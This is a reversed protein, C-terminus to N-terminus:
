PKLDFDFTMDTRQDPITVSLGSEGPRGYHKPIEWIEPATPNAMTPGSLISVIVVDYEGPQVGDDPGFTALEYRGDSDLQASAPRLPADEGSKTALFSIRAKWMAAPNGGVPVGDLTVRGSVPVTQPVRNCGSAGMAVFLLVCCRGLPMRGDRHRTKVIETEHGCEM